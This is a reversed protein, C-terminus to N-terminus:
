PAPSEVFIRMECRCHTNGNATIIGEVLVVNLVHNTVRVTTQLVTGVSPLQHVTLDKISAIYGLRIPLGQSKYFYGIQAAATQAINEVLGPERLVGGAVFLNDPLVHLRTEASTESVAHIEHIMVFPDRQPIYRTIDDRKALM